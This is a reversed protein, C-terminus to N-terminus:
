FRFSGVVSFRSTDPANDDRHGKGYEIRLTASSFQSNELANLELGIGFASAGVESREAVTPQQLRVQGYAAFVYPSALLGYDAVKVQRPMSVEGRVVWGSDGKLTGADFASLEQSGAIGFQESTVLPDGFSTQVRGALSLNFQDTLMRRLRASAVMKTFEADAGQRSLPTGGAADAATRAGLIDLGRSLVSGAEIVTGNETQWFGDAALRLVSTEDRYIPTRGTATVLDQADSQSDLTVQGSINRNRSRVFPYFLRVSYREFASSTPAAATEPTSRSDTAEVNLTLGDDGLPVVAGLSLTRLRPDGSFVGGLGDSGDGTPAGSFRGYFTEGLAFPSNLEFGASVTGSGLEDSVANDFALFGTVPRFEPQLVLSTAGPTAGAALASGLAVGYTDGALLLQREIDTLKVSRRGVLPDTLRTLRDRVQPPAASADVTEVFGDVVVIRLTGGDRLNQAPLIVRALVFGAQAYATELDSAANFIEAVTITQGTLRDRTAANVAAMQPLAGELELGSLSILLNEAGPPPKTGREGSFVVAGNM